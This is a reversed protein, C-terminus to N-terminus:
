ELPQGNSCSTWLQTQRETGLRRGRRYIISLPQQHSGVPNSFPWSGFPLLLTWGSAPKPEGLCSCIGLAGFVTICWWCGNCYYHILTACPAPLPETGLSDQLCSWTHLKKNLNHWQLLRLALCLYMPLPHFLLNDVSIPCSVNLHPHIIVM